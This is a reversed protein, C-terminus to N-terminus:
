DFVFSSFCLLLWYQFTVVMTYSYLSRSGSENGVLLCGDTLCVFVCVCISCLLLLCTQLPEKIITTTTIWFTFLFCFSTNVVFSMRNFIGRIFLFFGKQVISHIISLFDLVIQSYHAAMAVGLLSTFHLWQYECVCLRLMAM